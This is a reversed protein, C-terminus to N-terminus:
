SGEEGAAIQQACIEVGCPLEAGVVELVGEDEVDYRPDGLENSMADVFTLLYRGLM